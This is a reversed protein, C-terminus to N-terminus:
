GFILAAVIPNMQETASIWSSWTGDYTRTYSVGDSVKWITQLIETSDGIVSIFYDDTSPANTLNSGRFIGSVTVGNLNSNTIDSPYGLSNKIFPYSYGEKLVRWTDHDLDYWFTVKYDEARTSKFTFTTSDQISGTSNPHVTVPNSQTYGYSDFLEVQSYEKPNEPLYVSISGGSVNLSLVDGESAYYTTNIENFYKESIDKFFWEGLDFSFTFEIEGYDRDIRLINSSGNVIMGNPDIIINNNSANGTVDKFRVRGSKQVSPDFSASVSQSDTNIMYLKGISVDFNTGIYIPQLGFDEATKIVYAENGM